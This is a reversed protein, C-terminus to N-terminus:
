AATEKLKLTRVSELRAIDRRMEKLMHPKDLQGSKKRLRLDLLEHRVERLRKNLEPLTLEKIETIKLSM